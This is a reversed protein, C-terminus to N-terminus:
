KSANKLRPPSRPVFKTTVTPRIIEGPVKQPQVVVLCSAEYVPPWFFCYAIGCALVLLFIPTIMAWRRKLVFLYSTIDIGSSEM